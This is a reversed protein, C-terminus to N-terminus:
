TTRRLTRRVRYRSGDQALLVGRLVVRRARGTRVIGREAGDLTLTRLKVLRGRRKVLVEVQCSRLQKGALRCGIQLRRGRLVNRYVVATIDDPPEQASSAQAPLAPPLAPNPPPVQESSSPPPPPPQSTPPLNADIWSRLFTDAARSYVGYQTPYACGGGWSVVGMQVLDGAPHPVMLPGGSDGSCSDKGGEEYGACIMTLPEFDGLLYDSPYSLDCDSDDVIPIDVQHLEDPLNVGGIGPYFTGGWGIVRALTDPSWLPRESPVSVPIPRGKTSSGTLRVLAMDSSYFSPTHYQEHVRIEAAQITEGQAAESRKRVGLVYRVKAPPVTEEEGDGDRDDLVCHAATLIWDPRILSAGCRFSFDDQDADDDPDYYMAAMHPYDRDAPEGGVIAHASAPAVLALAALLSARFLRVM